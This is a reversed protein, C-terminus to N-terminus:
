HCRQVMSEKVVKMRTMKPNVLDKGLEWVLMKEDTADPPLGSRMEISFARWSNRFYFM